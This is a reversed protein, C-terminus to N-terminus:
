IVVISSISTDIEITDTGTGSESESDSQSKTKWRVNLVNLPGGKTKSKNVQTEPLMACIAEKFLAANMNM